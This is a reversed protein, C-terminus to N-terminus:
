DDRAKLVIYGDGNARVWYGMGAQLESANFYQGSYGYLTGLIVIGNPDDIECTYAPGSILNWGESLFVSLSDIPVGELSNSGEESFRLWYGNGPVLSYALSYSEDYEYCTGSLANPFLDNVDNNEIGVPLGVINWKEDNEITLSIEYNQEFYDYGYKQARAIPIPVGESYRYDWVTNGSPDVEFIHSSDAETILTNGNPLRFVGGQIRAVLDDDYIWAWTDPGFPDGESIFYNNDTEIPPSIEIVTATNGGQHRNNFIIINGEGPYGVPVWNVGHQTGLIHYSDEGRGYNQPKGWRYLIDGGKGSNGGSHGAAEEVTTSHDFVFIEDHNRSSLVFQDLEPNYDVSNLHIWDANPGDGGSNGVNGLNIDFLEPHDSIIGFNELTSDVDQILHDWLHWEWDINGTFPNLELIACSWMENLVNNIEVRGKEYAEAATKREWAIVLINGCPLPEVDHHHQYTDDAIKYDWIITGDWKIRRIGGGVGGSTMTPNEVRYPYIFSSDPLMYPMSAPGREHPWSNLVNSNQDLLYTTFSEEGLEGMPTFLIVGDFIQASLFTVLITCFNIVRLKYKEIKTSITL